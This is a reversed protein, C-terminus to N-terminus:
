GKVRMYGWNKQIKSYQEKKALLSLARERRKCSNGGFNTRKLFVFGM